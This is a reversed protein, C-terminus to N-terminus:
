NKSTHIKMHTVDPQLTVMNTWCKIWNSISKKFDRPPVFIEFLVTL